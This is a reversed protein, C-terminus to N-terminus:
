RTNGSTSVKISILSQDQLKDDYDEITYSMTVTYGDFEADTVPLEGCVQDGGEGTTYTVKNGDLM